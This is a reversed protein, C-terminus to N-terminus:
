RRIPSTFHLYANTASDSTGPKKRRSPIRGAIARRPRRPNPRGLPIPNRAQATMLVEGFDAARPNKPLSLGLSSLAQMLPELKEAVPKTHIRHLALIGKEILHDAVCRNAAIM